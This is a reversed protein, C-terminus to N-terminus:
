DVLMTRQNQMRELDYQAKQLDLERKRADAADNIADIEDQKAKIQKDILKIQNELAKKQAEVVELEADRQAELASVAADKAEELAEKQADISELAASKQSNISSIQDDIRGTIGSIVSDLDSLEEKLADKLTKGADKGASGASSRGKSGLKIDPNIEMNKVEGNALAELQAKIATAATLAGARAVVNNDYVGSELGNYINMLQILLQISQSTMDADGALAILNACDASTDLTAAQEAIKADYLTLILSATLESYQGEAILAEIEDYTANGLELSSQSLVEKAENLAHAYSIMEEYNEIGMSELQTKYYEENQETLQALFDSSNVWETALANAAEQCEEYSSATSGLVEQFRDWSELGRVEVDFGALTDAEVFGNEQKTGLAEAMASIQSSMASLQSSEDVLRNIKSVAEDASIGLNKFYDGATSDAEEFIEKTLRGKEALGLLTDGLERVKDNESTFSNAWAQDFSLNGTENAFADAMEEKYTKVVSILDELTLGNEKLYKDVESFNTSLEDQTLKGANALDVLKQKDETLIDKDLFNVLNQGPSLLLDDIAKLQWTINDLEDSTDGAAKLDDSFGQLETRDDRLENAIETLKDEYQKIGEADNSQVAEKKLKLYYEYQAILDALTGSGRMADTSQKSAAYPTSQSSTGGTLYSSAQTTKTEKNNYSSRYEDVKDRNVNGYKQGYKEKTLNAVKQLDYKEQDELYKQRIRLEENQDKLRQLDEKDTISLSSPDLAELEAIKDTTDKLEDNVSSLESQTSSLAEKANDLRHIYNDLAKAIGQIAVSAVLFIGANLATNM